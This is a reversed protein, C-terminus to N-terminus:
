EGIGWDGIFRTLFLRLKSQVWRLLTSMSHDTVALSALPQVLHISVVSEVRYCTNFLRYYKRRQLLVNSIFVVDTLVHQTSLHTLMNHLKILVDLYVRELVISHKYYICVAKEDHGRYTVSLSYILLSTESCTFRSRTRTSLSRRAHRWWFIHVDHCQERSAVRWM